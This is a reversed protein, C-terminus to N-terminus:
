FDEHFPPLEDPIPKGAAIFDLSPEGCHILIQERTEARLRIIEEWDNGQPFLPEGVTIKISGPKLLRQGERLIKRIGQSAIPLVPVNKDVAIKFSGFKFPRLGAAYTFTGEPFIVVPNQENLAQEIEKTAKTIGEPYHKRDLLIHKLKRIVTRIFPTQTVEKKAVFRTNPPLVATLVFVDFYSTHNPLFIIRKYKYLNQKNIIQIPCFIFRFFNRTCYHLITASLKRPLIWLSLYGPGITIVLVFLAYISYILQATKILYYHLKALFSKTRIKALQIVGSPQKLQDDLYAIKCAERHIKGMSTKPLTHPPVLIIKDPVMYQTTSVQNRINQIIQDPKSPRKQQTEAILIIEETGELTSEVGFAVVCGGRIGPVQSVLEEIGGPSLNRGAKIIIEKKRGAIFIEGQDLYALDGTDWWDNHYIKKTAELDRYYGCMSSPGNFQLNGVYRDPLEYGFDDVVRVKHQPIPKGCTVLRICFEESSDKVHIARKEYEFINREVKDIRPEQGLSSIAVCASSEALGYASAFNERKFGYPIFKKSFREITDPHIMEGGNIALRWSSLDLGEIRAPEINQACLEYAFNPGGSITGNSYHIAWLWREPRNLFSLPSMLILPIGHYFSGLWVSVLGMVHFFPLWSVIIDQHNIEIAKGVARTNALLNQHSLLVGKPFSKTDPVYQILAPIEPNVNIPSVMKRNDLLENVTVIKKLGPAFAPLLKGLDYTEQFTVVLLRIEANVLIRSQQRVYSELHHPQPPPYIPVPICNALLIGLFVYLFSPHSPLMLAITDNALVGLDLLSQAVKLSNEYLDGYTIISENGREDQFFIHAKEPIENAYLLLVDILNEAQKIKFYSEGKGSHSLHLAELQKRSLKLLIAKKLESLSDVKVLVRNDIHIDFQKEIRRFLEDRAFSGLGLHSQLSTDLKIKRKELRSERLFQEAIEILKKEVKQHSLKM